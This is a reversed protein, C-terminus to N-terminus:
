YKKLTRKLRSVRNRKRTRHKKKLKGGGRKEEDGEVNDEEREIGVSARAEEAPDLGALIRAGKFIPTYRERYGAANRNMVDQAWDDLSSSDSAEEIYLIAEDLTTDRNNELLVSMNQSQTQEQWQNQEAKWKEGAEKEEEFDGPGDLFYYRQKEVMRNYIARPPEGSGHAEDRYKRLPNQDNQDYRGKGIMYETLTEGIYPQGKEFVDLIIRDLGIDKPINSLYYSPRDHIANFVDDELGKIAALRGAELLQKNTEDRKAIEDLRKKEEENERKKRTKKANKELKKRKKRTLGKNKKKYNFGIAEKTTLATLGMIGAGVNWSSLLGLAFGTTGLLAPYAANNMEDFKYMEGVSYQPGKIDDPYKFLMRGDRLGLVSQQSHEYIPQGHKDHVQGSKEMFTKLEEQTLENRVLFMLKKFFLGDLHELTDDLKKIKKKIKKNLDNKVQVVESKEKEDEYTDIKEQIKQAKKIIKKIKKNNKVKDIYRKFDGDSINIDKSTYKEKVKGSMKKIKQFIIESSM